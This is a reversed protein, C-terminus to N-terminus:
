GQFPHLTLRRWTRLVDSKDNGKSNNHDSRNRNSNRNNKATAARHHSHMVPKCNRKAGIVAVILKKVRLAPSAKEHPNAERYQQFNRDKPLYLSLAKNVVDDAPVNAFAQM